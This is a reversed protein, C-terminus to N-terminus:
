SGLPKLTQAHLDLLGISASDNPSSSGKIMNAIDKEFFAIGITIMLCLMMIMYILFFKSVSLAFVSQQNEM